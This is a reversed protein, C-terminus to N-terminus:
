SIIYNKTILNKGFIRQKKAYINEQESGPLWDFLHVIVPKLSSDSTLLSFLYQPLKQRQLYYEVIIIEFGKAPVTLCHWM